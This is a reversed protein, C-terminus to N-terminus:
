KTPYTIGQNFQHANNKQAKADGFVGDDAFINLSIMVCLAALLIVTAMVNNM